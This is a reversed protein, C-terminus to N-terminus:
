LSAGIGSARTTDWPSTAISSNYASFDSLGPMDMSYNFGLDAGEGTFIESGGGKGNIDPAKLAKGVAYSTLGSAVLGLIMSSDSPAAELSPAMPTPGHIPAFRVKEFLSYSKDRAQQQSQDKKIDVEDQAFMLKSLTESKYQGLKKAGKGALRGATRGTQTGAYENEYMQVIAKELNHDADAFLRDLQKDQDVWQDVMSRYVVDQEVQQAQLDNKWEANDLMVDVKYQENKAAFNQLKARNRSKVGAKAANHQGIQGAANLLGMGISVPECM